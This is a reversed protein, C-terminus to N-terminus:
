LLRKEDKMPWRVLNDLILSEENVLGCYGGVPSERFYSLGTARYM